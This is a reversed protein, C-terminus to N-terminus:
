EKLMDIEADSVARVTASWTRLWRVVIGICGILGVLGAHLAALGRVVLSLGWLM